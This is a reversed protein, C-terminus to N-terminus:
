LVALWFILSAAACAAGIGVILRWPIRETGPQALPSFADTPAPYSVAAYNAGFAGPNQLAIPGTRVASGFPVPVPVGPQTVVPRSADNSFSTGLGPTNGEDPFLTRVLGAIRSGRASASPSERLADLDIALQEATQYRASLDRQLMKMLIRSLRPDVGPVLIGPDRIPASMVRAATAAVSEARFLRQGSIVEYLVIGLSFIDSRGDVAEGRIQEPSMYSWKGNVVGTVTETLSTKSVGFDILKVAGEVSVLINGPSIDRHVLDMRRGDALVVDHAYALARAVAVGVEIAVLPGLSIGRRSAASMVRFLSAGVVYEQVLFYNGNEKELEFVHAINPHDLMAAIKAENVFMTAFQEDRSYEPLIRKIVYPKSFGDPGERSALFVQAMGGVGLDRVIRYKGITQNPSISGGTDV